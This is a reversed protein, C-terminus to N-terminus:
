SHDINLITWNTCQKPVAVLVPTNIFEDHLVGPFTLDTPVLLM